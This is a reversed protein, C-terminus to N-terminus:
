GSFRGIVDAVYSKSVPIENVGEADMEAYIGDPAKRIVRVRALNIYYGRHCQVINENLGAMAKMTNRLSYRTLTGNNEYMINLYNGDAEIYVIRELGVILKVSGKEDTFRVIDNGVREVGQRLRMITQQADAIRVDRDMREMLLWYFSYPYLAAMVYFLLITPFSEIYGIHLYLSLFLDCLLVTALVEGAQWLLYDSERLRMSGGIHVLLWRSGGTVAAVIGSCVGLCAWWKGSFRDCGVSYLLWLIGAVLVVSAVFLMNNKVSYITKPTKM